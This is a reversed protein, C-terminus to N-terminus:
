RAGSEGFTLHTVKITYPLSPMQQLLGLSLMERMAYSSGKRLDKWADRKNENPAWNSSYSMSYMIMYQRCHHVLLMNGTYYKRPDVQIFAVIRGLEGGSSGM